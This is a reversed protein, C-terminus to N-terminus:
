RPIKRALREVAPEAADIRRAEALRRRATAFDRRRVAVEGYGVPILVSGPVQEAAREFYRQAGDLDDVNLDQSAASILYKASLPALAIAEEYAALARRAYTQTGEPSRARPPLAACLVGLRWWAEALTNPHTRDRALRAVITSQLREAGRVDGRLELEDVLHELEDYDGADFWGRQAAEADGRLEAIRAAFSARDTSPGLREALAAARALDRASLARRVLLIRLAEPMPLSPDLADVRPGATSLLRVLSGDQAAPVAAISALAQLAGLGVVIALAAVVAPWRMRTPNPM